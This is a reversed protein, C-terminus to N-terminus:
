RSRGRDPKQWKNRWRNEWDSRGFDEVLRPQWEAEPQSRISQQDDWEKEKAGTPIRLMGMLAETRWLKAADLEGLEILLSQVPTAQGAALATGAVFGALVLVVAIWGQDVAVPSGGTISVGVQQSCLARM